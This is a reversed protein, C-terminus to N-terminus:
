YVMQMNEDIYEIYAKRRVEDRNEKYWEYAECLGQMFDKTDPMLEKQKEVNLVYEYDAFSFYNRQPVDSEVCVFEVSKGVAKYCLEVWEKISVTKENGVNFIHHKPKEKLIIEIFRCLDYVHFFQLKMEGKKPLYFKRDQMACDFVFAERYINNYKGYLYPPRLIYADPVKELLVKEANMKDTGYDGWFRNRALEGEEVFPQIGYEPYVASSSILIYDKFTIGSDLLNKVDSDTYANVDIIADFNMDSMKGSMEEPLGSSIEGSIERSIEGSIESSIKRSLKPFLQDKLMNRDAQILTVGEVQRHNGRNFVYVENGAKVFYEAVYKSVFITGGTVLLKSM